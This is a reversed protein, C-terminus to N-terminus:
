FYKITLNVLKSKFNNYPPYLLTMTSYKPQKMVGKENSFAKFGHYGHSKGIGSYNIGGFPLNYNAFHVVVDNVASSGAPISELMNKIFSKNKSFVYLALPNPNQNVIYLIENFDKFTIIPLVPGFIENQMIASDLKVNEILTPSIFKDSEDIEGGHIITAGDNVADDILRQISQFHKVDILRCYNNEERLTNKDGYLNKTAEIMYGVFKEKVDEHILLYDPAVCTQGGNMFKGWAIRTASTRLDADKNLIVPSKGGLELTVKTLNKAAAEMVLKGVTPSGTFFIHNFPLSTLERAVEEDGLFTKVEDEPFLKDIMKKLLASTNTSKESPRVIVTNGAAIALGLPAMVLQFPYNWPSIILSQGISEYLVKSSSGFLSLPTSVRKPKMWKKLHKIIHKLESTTAYIESLRTEERSKRFDKYVAECIQDQSVLIENLLKKLKAKREEVSSNALRMRNSKQLDFVRKIEKQLNEEIPM